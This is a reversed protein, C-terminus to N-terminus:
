FVNTKITGSIASDSSKSIASEVNDMLDEPKAEKIIPQAEESDLMSTCHPCRTAGKKVELLCFPCIAYTEIRQQHTKAALIRRARKILRILIFICLALLLCSILAAIFNGYTIAVANDGEGLTYKLKSFDFDHFAYSLIPMIIDDVVSKILTTIAGGIVVAVALGLM